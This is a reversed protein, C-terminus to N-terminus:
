RQSLEFATGPGASGNSSFTEGYLNGSSDFILNSSPYAGDDGRFKFLVKEMWGGNKTPTLEFATGCGRSDFCPGGGFSTTGYLNGASDFILSANPDSGDSFDFNHLVKETWKGGSQPVLEFVVGCGYGDCNVPNGGSQTSGYLNGAADFILGAASNFGDKGNFRHLVHQKWKGGAEPTLEFVVGCGYNDCIGASHGGCCTVGYLNGAADLVLGGVPGNGDASNKGDRFIYLNKASWRGNSQPTLQFVSGIEQKGGSAATGYLNGAQDFILPGRPQGPHSLVKSKWQGGAQRELEFVSGGNCGDPNCGTTTGYLNGARDFVLSATPNGGERFTFDHLVTKKWTGNGQPTLEFVTGCGGNYGCGILGGENTTGYLNGSADFILGGEPSGRMYKLVNEKDAAFLPSVATFVVTLTLYIAILLFLRRPSPM